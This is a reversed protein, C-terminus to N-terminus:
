FLFTSGLLLGISCYGKKCFLLSSLGPTMIAKEEYLDDPAGM